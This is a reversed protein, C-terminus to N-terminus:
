QKKKPVNLEALKRKLLESKPSYKLGRKLLQRAKVPEGASTYLNSLRVYAPVFDPRLKIATIYHQVAKVNEELLMYVDGKKVLINPRLKFTSDTRKLIYDFEGIVTNLQFKRKKTDKIKFSSFTKDIGRCYHHMHSWGPGIIKWYRESQPSEFDGDRTYKCFSPLYKPNAKIYGKVPMRKTYDSAYLDANNFSNGIIFLLGIAM